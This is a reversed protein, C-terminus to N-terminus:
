VRRDLNVETSSVNEHTHTGEFVSGVDRNGEFVSGVDRNDEFKQM